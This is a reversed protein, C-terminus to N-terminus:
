QRIHRLIEANVANQHTIPAMHGADPIATRSTNAIGAELVDLIRVTPVRTKAGQLLLTPAQIRSLPAVANVPDFLAAFEYHTKEATALIYARAKDMLADWAGVGSWYDVYHRVGTETTGARYHHRFINAVSKLEKYAERHAHGALLWGSVPEFLTLSKLAGPHQLAFRLAVAAGYSHGALHLPGETKRLLAEVARIEAPFLDGPEGRWPGSGGYGLLDPVLVHFDAALSEVLTRWQGGSSSSCHLLIVPAGAGVEEYATFFSGTTLSPM